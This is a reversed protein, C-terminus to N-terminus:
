KGLPASDPGAAAELTGPDLAVGVLDMHSEDINAFGATQSGPTVGLALNAAPQQVTVVAPAGPTVDYLGADATAADSAPGATNSATAKFTLAGSGNNAPVKTNPPLSWTISGTTGTPDATTLGSTTGQQYTFGSPLT